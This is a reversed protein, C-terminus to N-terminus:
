LPLAMELVAAWIQRCQPLHPLVAMRALLARHLAPLMGASAQFARVAAVLSIGLAGLVFWHHQGAFNGTVMHVSVSMVPGLMAMYDAM